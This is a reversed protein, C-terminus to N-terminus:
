SFGALLRLLPIHRLLHCAALTLLFSGICISAALAPLPLSIRAMYYTMAVLITQHLLYIPYSMRNLYKTVATPKDLFRRGLVLLSLISICGVLNVWLDGYYAFRYYLLVSLLTVATWLSLLWGAHQELCELVSDQSLYYYGLLFLALSFGGLNGLYYMLWVPLFLLLLGGFPIAAAKGKTRGASPLLPIPLQPLICFIALSVM